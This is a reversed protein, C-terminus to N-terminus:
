NEPVSNIAKCLIRSRCKSIVVPIKRPKVQMRHICQWKLGKDLPFIQGHNCHPSYVRVCDSTRRKTGGCCTMDDERTGGSILLIAVQVQSLNLKLEPVGDRSLNHSSLSTGPSSSSSLHLHRPLCLRHWDGTAAQCLVYCSMRTLLYFGRNPVGM